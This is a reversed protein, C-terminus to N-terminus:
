NKAEIKSNTEMVVPFTMSQAGSIDITGTMKTSVERKVFNGERVAFYLTVTGSLPGKYLIDMGQNQTTTQMIGTITSTIKACDIGNLKEVGEFKNNSQIIQTTNSTASKNTVTDNRIWTDGTNVPKEPLDPFVNAFYQSLNGGPTGEITFEIKAAEETNLEKGLPSLVMNFTKGEVEKIKGGTSGNPSEVKSVLSDVTIELKFNENTKSLMKAKFALNQNILVNMTQGNVDMAQTITTASYYTVSKGEVFTYALKVPDKSAPTENKNIIFATSFVFTFFLVILISLHNTTAPKKM